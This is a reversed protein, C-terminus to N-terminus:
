QSACFMCAHTPKISKRPNRSGEREREREGARKRERERSRLLGRPRYLVVSLCFPNAKMAVLTQDPSPLCTCREQEDDRLRRKARFVPYTRRPANLGFNINKSTSRFTTRCGAHSPIPFETLHPPWFRRLLIGRPCGTQWDAKRSCEGGTVNWLSSIPLLPCM